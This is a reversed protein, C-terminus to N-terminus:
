PLPLKLRDAYYSMLHAAYVPLPDAAIGALAANYANAYSFLYPDGFSVTGDNNLLAVARPKGVSSWQSYLPGPAVLFWPYLEVGVPPIAPIPDGVSAFHVQPLDHIIAYLRTDGARPAGFTLLQIPAQPHAILIEAAVVQVTAGGYSHGTLILPKAPDVGAVNMATILAQANAQWQANTAYMGYPTPGLAGYLLQGTWQQQNTTGSSLVVQQTPSIGILYGSLPSTPSDALFTVTSDPGLINTLMVAAAAADEYLTEQVDALLAQWSRETVDVMAVPVPVTPLEFGYCRVDFGNHYTRGPPPPDNEGFAFCQESGIRIPLPFPTPAQGSFWSRAGEWEGLAPWPNREASTWDRSGLNHWLPFHPQGEPCRVYRGPTLLSPDSHLRWKSAFATRVWEIAYGCTTCGPNM